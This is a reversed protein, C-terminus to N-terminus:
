CMWSRTAGRAGARTYHGGMLQIVTDAVEALFPKDLGLVKGFRVARRLVRRFIYGRGTNSPLM